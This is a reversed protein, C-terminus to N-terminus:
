IMCEPQSWGLKIKDLSREPLARIPFPELENLHPCRYGFHSGYGIGCFSCPLEANIPPTHGWRREYERAEVTGYM